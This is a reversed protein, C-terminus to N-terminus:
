LGNKRYPVYSGDGDYPYSIVRATAGVGGAEELGYYATHTEDTWGNFIVVHGNNGGSGPGGKLLIDGPQLEDKSIPHAVTPLTVTTLSQDLGWAMSVFGSCDTRYQKGNPDNTYASQSYPVGREVWTNARKIIEQRDKTGAADPQPQDDPIPQAESAQVFTKNDKVCTGDPHHASNGTTVKCVSAQTGPVLEKAWPFAFIGAIIIAVVVTIGIFEVTGFGDESPDQRKHATTVTQM